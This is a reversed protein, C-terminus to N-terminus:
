AGAMEEGGCSAVRGGGRFRRRRVLCSLAESGNADAYKGSSPALMPASLSPAFMGSPIFAIDTKQLSAHFNPIFDEEFVSRLVPKTPHPPVGRAWLIGVQRVFRQVLHEGILQAALRYDAHISPMANHPFRFQVL